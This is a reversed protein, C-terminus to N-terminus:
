AEPNSSYADIFAEDVQDPDLGIPGFIEGELKFIEADVKQEIETNRSKGAEAAVLASRRHADELRVALPVIKDHQARKDAYYVIKEEWTEPRDDEDILSVYRHRRITKALVPYDEKLFADAADEHRVHGHDAKLRRWRAKDAEGIPQQFWSFDELPFDCVRFLDHLLCARDVLEVDVEIGREALRQALFVGLKATAQTHKLIHVPVHCAEITALCQEHSPLTYNRMTLITTGVPFDGISTTWDGLRICARRGFILALDQIPRHFRLARQANADAIVLHGTFM